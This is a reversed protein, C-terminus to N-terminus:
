NIKILTLTILILSPLRTLLWPAPPLCFPHIQSHIKSKPSFLKYITTVLLLFWRFRDVGVVFGGLVVLFGGLGACLIVKKNGVTMNVASIMINVTLVFNQRDFSRVSTKVWFNGLSSRTIGTTNIYYTVSKYTINKKMWTRRSLVWNYREKLVAMINVKFTCIYKMFNEVSRFIKRPGCTCYSKKQLFFQVACATWMFNETRHFIKHLIYAGKIGIKVIPLDGVPFFEMLCCRSQQISANKRFIGLGRCM